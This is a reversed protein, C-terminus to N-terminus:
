VAGAGSSTSLLSAALLLRPRHARCSDAAAPRRCPAACSARRLARGCPRRARPSRARGPARARRGVLLVLCVTRIDSSRTGASRSFSPSAAPARRCKRRCAARRRPRATGSPFPGTRRGALQRLLGDVREVALAVFFVVLDDDGVHLAPAPHRAVEALRMDHQVDRVERQADVVVARRDPLRAHHDALGARRRREERLRHLVDGDVRGPVHRRRDDVVFVQRRQLLIRGHELAHAQLQLLPRVAAHVDRLRRALGVREAADAEIERVLEQDILVVRRVLVQERM